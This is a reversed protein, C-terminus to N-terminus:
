AAERRAAPLLRRYVSYLTQGVARYDIQPPKPGAQSPAPRCTPIPWEAPVGFWDIDLECPVVQPKRTTQTGRAATESHCIVTDALEALGLELALWDGPLGYETLCVPRRWLKAALLGVECTRSFCEHLHVLDSGAIKEPLDWSVADWVTRPYGCIPLVTRVVGQAIERTHPNTGCSILEVTAEGTAGGRSAAVVEKALRCLHSEARDVGTVRDSDLLGLYTIQIPM